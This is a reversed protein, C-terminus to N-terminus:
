GGEIKPSCKAVATITVPLITQFGMDVVVVSWGTATPRSSQRRAV